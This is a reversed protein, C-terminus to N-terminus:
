IELANFSGCNRHISVLCDISAHSKISGDTTNRACEYRCRRRFDNSDCLKAKQTPSITYRVHVTGSRSKITQVQQPVNASNGGFPQKNASM